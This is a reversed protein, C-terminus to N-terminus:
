KLSINHVFIDVGGGVKKNRNSFASAYLPMNYLEVTEDSLWTEALSIISFEHELTSSFHIFQDNNKLLSRINLHLTSFVNSNITLNCFLTHILSWIRSELRNLFNVDSDHPYIFVCVCM